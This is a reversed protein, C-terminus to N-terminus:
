RQIPVRAGAPVVVVPRSSKSRLDSSVSGVLASRLSGLRRTGVVILCADEEDALERISEAEGGYTVRRQVDSGLGEELALRTLFRAAERRNLEALRDPVGPAASASPPPTSAIAHTVLLEAELRLSLWLAARTASRAAPSDDVACVVPQRPRLRGGEPVVMVPCTARSVAATSVSGLIASAISGRGRTGTVLLAAENNEAVGPIVSAPDGSEVRREVFGSYPLRDAVGDLFRRGAAVPLARRPAPAYHYPSAAVTVAPEPEVVHLLLLELELLGALGAAVAVADGAAASGDVACVIANASM